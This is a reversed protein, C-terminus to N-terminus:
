EVKYPNFVTPPKWVKCIPSNTRIYNVDSISEKITYLRKKDNKNIYEYLNVVFLNKLDKDVPKAYFAVTSDKAGKFIELSTSLIITKTLNDFARYIPITGSSQRDSAFFPIEIKTTKYNFDIESLKDKTQYSSSSNNLVYVPVPLFLREDDLDIKYMIQNYEYRPTSIENGSFMKTYTGEFYITKGNDKSFYPHQLPNYFSYKNHSLIKATYAYPGLHTDGEAYWIEGLCSTGFIETFIMTWRKRYPNYFTSGAHYGVDKGENIDILRFWKEDDKIIKKQTLINLENVGIPSTNKKWSYKIEGDSYREIQEESSNFKSNDILCTFAEYQSHDIICNYDAKTRTLSSSLFYFYDQGNQNYIFPHGDPNIIEDLPYEQIKRFVKKDDDFIVMGRGITEMLPKIKSYSALLCDKGNNDKIVLLNGLWYPNSDLEPMMKKVYDGDTFYNFEIGIDPDLGGDSLLLSTGCTTKFNGALPHRPHGTDGWLWFLKGKYIATWVSDQGTVSSRIFPESIPIKDGLLCSDNYLGTGTIRYLRQAIITRKMKIVTNGGQKTFLSLGYGDYPDKEITYGDSEVNFYVNQNMLAPEFFAIVGANDTIYEIGTLTIFKVLPIGRQTAEDVATIRFYIEAPPLIIKQNGIQAYRKNLSEQAISSYSFILLSIFLVNFNKKM